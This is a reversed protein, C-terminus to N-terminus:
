LIVRVFVRTLSSFLSVITLSSFLNSSIPFSLSCYISLFFFSLCISLILRRRSFADRTLSTTKKEVIPFFSYSLILWFSFLPFLFFFHFLCFLFFFSFFIQFPKKKNKNNIRKSNEFLFFPCFLIFNVRRMCEAMQFFLGIIHFSLVFVFYLFFFPFFYLLILFPLLFSFFYFILYFEVLLIYKRTM